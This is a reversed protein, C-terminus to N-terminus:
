RRRGPRGRAGDEWRLPSRDGGGAAGRDVSPAAGAADGETGIIVRSTRVAIAALAVWPDTTPANPDGHFVVYDEIFVGDWGAAEAREALEVLFGPEACPGGSPLTLSSRM